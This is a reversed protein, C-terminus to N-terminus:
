DEEARPRLEVLPISIPKAQVIIPNGLLVTQKFIWRLTNDPSHHPPEYLSTEPIVICVAIVIVIVSPANAIIM